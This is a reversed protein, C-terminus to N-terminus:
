NRSFALLPEVHLEEALGVAFAVEYLFPRLNLLELCGGAARLRHDLVVLRLWVTSEIFQVARFDLRWYYQGEERALDLLDEVLYLANTADLDACTFRLVAGSRQM